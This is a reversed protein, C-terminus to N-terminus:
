PHSSPRGRGLSGRYMRPFRLPLPHTSSLVLSTTQCRLLFPWLRALLLVVVVM